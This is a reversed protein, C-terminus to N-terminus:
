MELISSYHALSRFRADTYARKYMETEKFYKLIFKLMEQFEIIIIEVEKNIGENNQARLVIKYKEYPKNRNNLDHFNFDGPITDNLKKLLNKRTNKNFIGVNFYLQYDCKKGVIEIIAEEIDQLIFKNILQDAPDGWPYPNTISFKIEHVVVDFVKSYKNLKVALLDIEGRGKGGDRTKFANFTHNKLTLYGLSNYYCEIVDEEFTTM